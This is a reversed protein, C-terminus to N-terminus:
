FLSTQNESPVSRLEETLEIIARLRWYSLKETQLMMEAYERIKKLAEDDHMAPRCYSLKETKGMTEAFELIKKLAEEDNM